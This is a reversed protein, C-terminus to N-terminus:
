NKPTTKTNVTYTINKECHPGTPYSPQYYPQVPIYTPSIYSHKAFENEVTEKILEKLEDITMDIVKESANNSTNHKERVEQCIMLDDILDLLYNMTEKIDTQLNTEEDEIYKWLEVKLSELENQIRSLQM